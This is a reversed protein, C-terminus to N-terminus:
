KKGLTVILGSALALVAAVLVTVLTWLRGSWTEVRKLHDGLQQKLLANEQRLDAVEGHLANIKATARDLDRGRYEDLKSVVRLETALERIQEAMSKPM